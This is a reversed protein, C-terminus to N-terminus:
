SPIFNSTPVRLVYQNDHLFRPRINNEVPKAHSTRFQSRLKALAQKASLKEGSTEISQEAVEQLRREEASPEQRWACVM